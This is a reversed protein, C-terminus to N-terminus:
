AESVEHKRLTTASSSFVLLLINQYNSYSINQIEFTIFPTNKIVINRKIEGTLCIEYFIRAKLDMVFISQHARSQKNEM